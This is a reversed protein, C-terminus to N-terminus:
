FIKRNFLSNEASLRLSLDRLNPLPKHGDTRLPGDKEDPLCYILTDFDPLISGLEEGYRKLFLKRTLDYQCYADSISLIKIPFFPFINSSGGYTIWMWNDQISCLLQVSMYDQDSKQCLLKRFDLDFCIPLPFDKTKEKFISLLHDGGCGGTLKVECMILNKQILGESKIKEYKDYAEKRIYIDPFAFNDVVEDDSITREAVSLLMPWDDITRSLNMVQDFKIKQGISEFLNEQSYHTGCYEGIENPYIDSSWNNKSQLILSDAFISFLPLQNLLGYITIKIDNKRCWLAFKLVEINNTNEIAHMSVFVYNKYKKQNLDILYHEVGFILEKRFLNEDLLKFRL